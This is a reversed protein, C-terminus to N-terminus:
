ANGTIHKPAPKPAPPPQSAAPPPTVTMGGITLPGTPPSFSNLGPGDHIFPQQDQAQAKPADAAMAPSTAALLALIAVAKM